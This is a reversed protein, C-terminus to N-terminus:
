NSNSSLFWEAITTTNLKTIGGIKIWHVGQQWYQKKRKLTAVSLGKSGFREQLKIAAPEWDDWTASAPFPAIPRPSSKPPKVTRQQTTGYTRM